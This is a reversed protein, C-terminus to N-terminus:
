IRWAPRLRVNERRTFPANSKVRQDVDRQVGIAVAEGRFARPMAGFRQLKERLAHRPPHLRRPDRRVHALRHERRGRVQDQFRAAASFFQRTETLMRIEAREREAELAHPINELARMLRRREIRCEEPLRGLRREMRRQLLRAAGHKWQHGLSAVAIGKLPHDGQAGGDVGEELLHQDHVLVLPYAPITERQETFNGIEEEGVGIEREHRGRDLRTCVRTLGPAVQVGALSAQPARGM